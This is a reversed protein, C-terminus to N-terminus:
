RCEKGVRREESRGCWPAWFDVLMVGHEIASDFDAVGLELVGHAVTQTNMITEFVPLRSAVPTGVRDGHRSCSTLPSDPCARNAPRRRCHPTRRLHAASVVTAAVRVEVNRAVGYAVRRGMLTTQVGDVRPETKGARM